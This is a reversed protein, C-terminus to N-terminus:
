VSYITPLTLHTYSVSSMNYSQLVPIKKSIKKLETIQKSNFGTTGTVFPVRFGEAKKALSISSKPSSFDIILDVDLKSPAKSYKIDKLKYKKMDRESYISDHLYPHVPVDVAYKVELDSNSKCASIVSQGMKGLAGNVFVTKKNKSM